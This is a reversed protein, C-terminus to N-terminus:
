LDNVNTILKKKYDKSIADLAKEYYEKSLECSFCKRNMKQCVYWTVGSGGFPDCVVDNENSSSEILRQILEIPKQTPHIKQVSRNYFNIDSWVDTLGFKVNFKYVYDGYKGIPGILEDLKEWDEKTPYQTDKKKLGAIGSWTGGGNSAKGLHDNIEKCTKGSVIKRENLLKKVIDRSDKYFFFISETATPFMKLKSSVRGAVSQMGKFVIIQQRYAFGHHEMISILKTLQYPFGFLWLSCSKKAKKSITGMLNDFWEQYEEFTKWVNDWSEKVVKYYPPDLIFLDVSEDEFTNMFKVNDENVFM